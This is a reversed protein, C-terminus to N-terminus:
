ARGTKEHEPAAETIWDTVKTGERAELAATMGAKLADIFLAKAPPVKALAMRMRGLEIAEAMTDGKALYGIWWAGEVRLALRFAFKGDDTM